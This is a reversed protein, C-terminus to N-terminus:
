GGHEYNAVEGILTFLQQEGGALEVSTRYKGNIVLSPATQIRLRRNLLDARQLKAEVEVSSFAKQFDDTSVGQERFFAGIKEVSDLPNGKVNAERFLLAHLEDLKGLLEATYFVRAQLRLLENWMAPLRVFEVYAPKMKARWSDLAPDLAFCSGCGYWFVELVEVKDPGVSTPQAPVIKQYHVGEKFRSSTPPGPPPSGLKFTPQLGTVTQDVSEQGDDTESPIDKPLVVPTNEGTAAETGGAASGAADASGASAPTSPNGGAPKGAQINDKNGCAALVLSALVICGSVLRRM